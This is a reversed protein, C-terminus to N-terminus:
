FHRNQMKLIKPLDKEFIGTKSPVFPLLVGCQRKKTSFGPFQQYNFEKKAM